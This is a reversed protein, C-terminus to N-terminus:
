QLVEEARRELIARPEQLAAASRLAAQAFAFGVAM